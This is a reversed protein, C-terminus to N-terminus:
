AVGKSQCWRIVFLPPVVERTITLSGFSAKERGCPALTRQIESTIAEFLKYIPQNQLPQPYSNLFDAGNGVARLKSAYDAYSSKL